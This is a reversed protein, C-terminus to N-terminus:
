HLFFKWLKFGKNLSVVKFEMWGAFIGKNLMKNKEKTEIPLKLNPPLTSCAWSPLCVGMDGGAPPLLWSQETGPLLSICIVGKGDEQSKLLVDKGGVGATQMLCSSFRTIDSSILPLFVKCLLRGRFQSKWYHTIRAPKWKLLCTELDEHHLQESDGKVTLLLEM